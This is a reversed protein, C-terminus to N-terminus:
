ASAALPLKMQAVCDRQRMAAQPLSSRGTSFGDVRQGAIRVANCLAVQFMPHLPFAAVAKAHDGALQAPNQAVGAVHTIGLGPPPLHLEARQRPAADIKSGM